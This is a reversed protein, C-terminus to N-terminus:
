TLTAEFSLPAKRRRPSRKSLAREARHGALAISQYMDDSLAHAVVTQRPHAEVVILCRKDIGGKDGNVDDLRVQIKHLSHGFRRKLPRLCKGIANQLGGTLKFPRAQIDVQM